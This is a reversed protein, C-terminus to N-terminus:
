CCVSLVCKGNIAMRGTSGPNAMQRETSGPNATQGRSEGDGKTGSWVRPMTCRKTSLRFCKLKVEEKVGDWWTRPWGALLCRPYSHLSLIYNQLSIINNCLKQPRIGKKDSVLVSFM